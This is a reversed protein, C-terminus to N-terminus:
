VRSVWRHAGGGAPNESEPANSDTGLSADDTAASQSGASEVARAIASPDDALPNMTVVLLASLLVSLAKQFGGKRVAANNSVPQAGPELGSGSGIMHKNRM